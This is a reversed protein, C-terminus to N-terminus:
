NNLDKEMKIEIYKITNITGCEKYGRNKYFKIAHKSENYVECCVKNCVNEKAIEEIKEICFSGIGKGELNPLTALKSFKLLGSRQKIQFTAVPKNDVIDYVLFLKNKLACLFVIIINKIKSNDWHHLNFKEAMNKGSQCLISVIKNFKFINFIRVRKVIYM